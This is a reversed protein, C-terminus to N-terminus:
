YNEKTLVDQKRKLTPLVIADKWENPVTGSSLSFNIMNTVTPVPLDTCQKFLCTPIPDLACIKSPALAILKSLTEISVNDFSSLECISRVSCLQTSSTPSPQGICCQLERRIKEIKESFYEAFQNALVEPSDHPPLPTETPKHLLHNMESFLAKQNGSLEHIRASYFSTKADM